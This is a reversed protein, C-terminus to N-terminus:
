LPWFGGLAGSAASPGGFIWAALAYARGASSCALAALGFRTACALLAVGHRQSAWGRLAVGVVGLGTGGMASLTRPGRRTVATGLHVSGSLLIGPFGCLGDGVKRPPGHANVGPCRLWCHRRLRSHLCVGGQVDPSQGGPPSTMVEGVAEQPQLHRRPHFLEGRPYSADSDLNGTGGGPPPPNHLQRRPKQSGGWCQWVLPRCLHVVDVLLRDAWGNNM